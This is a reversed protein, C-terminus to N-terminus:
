LRPRVPFGTRVEGGRKAMFIGKSPIKKESELRNESRPRPFSVRKRLDMQGVMSEGGGMLGWSLGGKGFM